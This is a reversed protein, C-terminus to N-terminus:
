ESLFGELATVFGDPQELIPYHGANPLTVSVGFPMEAAFTEGYVPPIITDSGGTLVLAPMEVYRLRRALGRDPIPWLFKTASALDSARQIPQMAADLGQQSWPAYGTAIASEPDHWAAQLMQKPNFTFVDPIPTHDLWLGYPAVLALRRVLHPSTVAAEAAIMAGLSHGVLDVSSVGLAEILERVFLAADHIDQWEAFGTSEGYGPLEPAVVQRREGLAALFAADGPHGDFGHLYLLTAGSGGTLARLHYRGRGFELTQTSLM